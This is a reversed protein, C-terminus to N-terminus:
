LTMENEHDWQAYAATWDERSDARRGGHAKVELWEARSRCLWYYGPMTGADTRKAPIYALTETDM